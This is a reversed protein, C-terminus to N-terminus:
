PKQGKLRKAHKRNKAATLARKAWDQPDILLEKQLLQGHLWAIREPLSAAHGDLLRPVGAEDLSKNARSITNKLALLDGNDMVM